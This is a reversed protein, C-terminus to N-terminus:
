GVLLYCLGVNELLYLLDTCYAIYMHLKSFCKKVYIRLSLIDDGDSPLRTNFSIQWSFDAKLVKLWQGLFSHSDSKVEQMSTRPWQSVTSLGSPLHSLPVVCKEWSLSGKGSKWGRIHNICWQCCHMWIYIKYEEVVKGCKTIHQKYTSYFSVAVKRKQKIM